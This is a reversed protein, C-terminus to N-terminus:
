EICKIRVPKAIKAVVPLQEPALLLHLDCVLCLLAPRRPLLHVHDKELSSRRSNPFRNSNSLFENLHFKSDPDSAPGSDDSGGVGPSNCFPPAWGDACHCHGKSNCVGNGSCDPCDFVKGETKLAEITLCKQKVCMKDDGCKAGDPTLGPDVSQLGLDVIATRCPVISGRYNMFSHSLIAVSEM